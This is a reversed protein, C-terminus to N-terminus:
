SFYKKEKRNGIREDFVCVNNRIVPSTATELERAFVSICKTALSQNSLCIKGLAVFAHARTSSPIPQNM